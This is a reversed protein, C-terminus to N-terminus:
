GNAAGREKEFLSHIGECSLASKYTKRKERLRKIFLENPNTEEEDIRYLITKAKKSPVLKKTPM